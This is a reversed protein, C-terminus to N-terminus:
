LHQLRKVKRWTMREGWWFRRQIGEFSKGWSPIMEMEMENIM